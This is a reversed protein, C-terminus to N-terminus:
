SSQEAYEKMQKSQTEKQKLHGVGVSRRFAM